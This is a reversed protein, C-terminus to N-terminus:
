ANHEMVPQPTSVPKAVAKAVLAALIVLA